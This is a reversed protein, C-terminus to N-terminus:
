CRCLFAAVEHNLQQWLLDTGAALAMHGLCSVISEAMDKESPVDSPEEASAPTAAGLQLVLPGLLLQFLMEPWTLGAGLLCM